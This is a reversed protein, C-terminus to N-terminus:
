NEARPERNDSRLKAVLAEAAGNPLVWDIVSADFGALDRHVPCKAGQMQHSVSRM